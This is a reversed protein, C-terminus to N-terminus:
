LIILAVLVFFVLINLLIVQLIGCWRIEKMDVGYTLKDPAHSFGGEFCRLTYYLHLISVQAKVITNSNM